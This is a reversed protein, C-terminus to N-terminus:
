KKDGYICDLYDTQIIQKICYIGLKNTYMTDLEVADHLNITCTKQRM